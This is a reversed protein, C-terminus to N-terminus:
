IPLIRSIKNCVMAKYRMYFIYMHDISPLTDSLGRSDYWMNNDTLYETKKKRLGIIESKYSYLTDGDLAFENVVDGVKLNPLRRPGLFIM